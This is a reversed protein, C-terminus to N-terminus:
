DFRMSALREIYSPDIRPEDRRHQQMLEVRRRVLNPLNSGYILPTEEQDTTAM